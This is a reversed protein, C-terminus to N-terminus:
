FMAGGRLLVGPGPGKDGTKGKMVGLGMCGSLGLCTSETKISKGRTSNWIFPVLCYISKQM